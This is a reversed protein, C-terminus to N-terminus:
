PKGAIAIGEFEATCRSGIPVSLELNPLKLRVVFISSTAEVVADIACARRYKVSAM